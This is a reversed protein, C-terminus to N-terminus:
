RAMNTASSTSDNRLPESSPPASLSHRRVRVNRATVRTPETVSWARRCAPQRRVDRYHMWRAALSTVSLVVVVATMVRFRGDRLTELLEKRAIQRVM